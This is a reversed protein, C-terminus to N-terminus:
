GTAPSAGESRNDAVRSKVIRAPVGVAVCHDPLPRNVVAGAGVICGAGVDAMIVASAGIWAGAGIRVCRYSQAQDQIVGHPDASEEHEHGGSLIQVGDALLAGEGIDAYGISCFRGIYAREGVKAEPMSFVSQWGFYVDQGCQVLTRRYFAQRLYVGRLGPVRAISESSSGFARRGLLRQFIWYAVLRPVALLTFLGQVGRKALKFGSTRQPPSVRVEAPSDPTSIPASM